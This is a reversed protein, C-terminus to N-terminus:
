LRQGHGGFKCSKVYVVMWRAWAALGAVGELTGFELVLAVDFTSSVPAGSAV